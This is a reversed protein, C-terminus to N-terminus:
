FGILEEIQKYKWSDTKVYDLELRLKDLRQQHAEAFIFFYLDSINHLHLLEVILSPSMGM